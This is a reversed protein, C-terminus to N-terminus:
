QFTSKKQLYLGKEGLQNFSFDIRLNFDYMTVVDFGFGGGYLMKNALRNNGPNPNYSYGANGYIKAYIKLPILRPTLWRTGPIHIKFNTIQHALTANVLGGAVGDVVYYEYGRMTFDSYGLLQMSYYPQKFPVKITGTAGLSYFMKETLPWYKVGKLVLQTVNVDKGLGQQLIMFEAAHGETPYPNYDFDRHLLRYYFEPFSIENGPVKFYNPNLKLVSDHVRLNNYGFGFTHWTYFAPRYTAEVSGKFFNRAFAKDRLKLFVQKDNVTNYNIEHNKGLAIDFNLGWKLNKDIYPRHYSLQLQRTYGTIFYFRLKDNNGTINDLHLKVGYDVRSLNMKEKFLWQSLNRDVPKLHPFPWIYNREDVAVRIDVNYMDFKLVSIHVEHFLRTNMLRNEAEEFKEPFNKILVSDGERFTLERLIIPARTRKNGELVISRVVFGQGLTDKIISTDINYHSLPHPTASHGQEAEQAFANQTCYFAVFLLVVQLWPTNKIANHM